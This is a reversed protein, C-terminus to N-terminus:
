AEDLQDLIRDVDRASHLVRVIEIGNTDSRYFILYKTFGRVRWVQLGLSEAARYSTTSGLQPADLLQQFTEDTAALFRMAVDASGQRALYDAHGLLDREAAPLHKIRRPM